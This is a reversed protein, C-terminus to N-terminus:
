VTPSPSSGGDAFGQGDGNSGAKGRVQDLVPQLRGSKGLYALAGGVALVAVPVGLRALVSPRQPRRSTQYRDWAKKAAVAAVARKVVPRM